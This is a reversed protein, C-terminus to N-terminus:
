RGIKAYELNQRRRLVRLASIKLAMDFDELPVLEEATHSISHIERHVGDVFTQLVSTDRLGQAHQNQLNVFDLFLKRLDDDTNKNLTEVKLQGAMSSSIPTLFYLITLFWNVVQSAINLKIFITMEQSNVFTFAMSILQAIGMTFSSLSNVRFIGEIDSEEKEKVICYYRCFPLFHYYRVDIPRRPRKAYSDPASPKQPTAAGRGSAKQLVPNTGEVIVAVEEEAKFRALVEDAYFIYMVCAILYSCPMAVLMLRVVAIDLDWYSNFAMMFGYLDLECGLLVTLFMMNVLGGFTQARSDKKLSEVDIRLAKALRKWNEEIKDKDRMAAELKQAGLEQKSELKATELYTASKQKKLDKNFQIKAAEYSSGSQERDRVAPQAEIDYAKGLGVHWEKQTEDDNGDTVPADELPPSPSMLGLSSLASTVADM